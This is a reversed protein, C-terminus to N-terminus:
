LSESLVKFYLEEEQKSDFKNLKVKSNSLTNILLRPIEFYSLNNIDISKGDILLMAINNKLNKKYRLGNTLLPPLHDSSVYIIAKPDMRLINDIYNGLAKTRYYFQNAIREIRKDSHSATIVSPRDKINRDYPFHGYLGLVYSFYPQEINKSKLNNINYDYVEGDFIRSDSKNIKFSDVEELFIIDDFGISQYAQKSNFYNSTSAIVARSKYGNLKLIDVFGPIKNGNLSNFEISNVKQLARVGTLLEFEAQATGGGYVPSNVYSFGNKGLHKKLNSSLPTRNFKVDKILRPDIFSELVIMYINRKDKIITNGFLIKNVDIIKNKYISLKKSEEKSKISYYMFSTIRGNKRITLSQSWNIYNFKSFLYKSFYTTNIYYTFSVILFIKFGINVFFIKSATEKKYSVILLLISIGILLLISILGINMVFSFEKITGINSLDSLRPSRALFFYFADILAYIGLISMVSVFINKVINKTPFYLILLVVLLLPLEFRKIQSSIGGSHVWFHSLEIYIIIAVISFIFYIFLKKVNFINIEAEKILFVVQITYNNQMFPM